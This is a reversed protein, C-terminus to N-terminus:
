HEIFNIYECQSKLRAPRSLVWHVNRGPKTRDGASLPFMEEDSPRPTLDLSYLSQSTLGRVLPPSAPCSLADRLRTTSVLPPSLTRPLLIGGEWGFFVLTRRLDTLLYFGFSLYRTTPGFRVILPSSRLYDRIDCDAWGCRDRYIM